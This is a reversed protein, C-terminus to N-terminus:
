SQDVAGNNTSGCPSSVAVSLAVANSANERDLSLPSCRMAHTKHPPTPSRPLSICITTCMALAQKERSYRHSLPYRRTDCTENCPLHHSASYFYRASVHPPLLTTDWPVRHPVATLNGFMRFASERRSGASLSIPRPISLTAYILRAGLGERMQGLIHMSIPARQLGRRLSGSTRPPATNARSPTPMKKSRGGGLVVQAQCVPREPWPM